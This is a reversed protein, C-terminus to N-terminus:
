EEDAVFPGHLRELASVGPPLYLMDGNGLLDQAGNQDLITRGDIRTRVQFAIRSPMNAKILGTIVNVSPRQTAVILHIGAARAKQALRIISEEVDKAAVMMLDALEDIVVVIYPLRRPPPPVEGELLDPPAYRRAKAPTWDDLEREVKQNYSAINRVGWRTLLRYREDMEVCAWKLAASALRPETVVPHLLHPIDRYMEFELMKPDILLMRMEEPTRAYLMSLLMSNVSVSKGSGTTGGVLLHPMRALDALYPKGEVSKGLALPLAVDSRRYLDSALLDRIWVTQRARNPVEIGVVGKGPIPAVIRVRVAKMAMALDDSLSAIKSVKIGAAPLFEFITIVPGPRISVVEGKVKFDALKAELTQAMKRLYSEDVQLIDRSHRDLLDLNPLEFQTMAEHAIVAQGGHDKGGSSLEGPTVSIPGENRAQLSEVPDPEQATVPDPEQAALPDPEQAAVPQQASVPVPVELSSLSPLSAPGGDTPSCLDATPPSPESVEQVSPPPCSQPGTAASVQERHPPTPSPSPASDQPGSPQSPIPPPSPSEAFRPITAEATPEWEVEVLDRGAVRTKEIPDDEDSAPSFSSSLADTLLGHNITPMPIAGVTPEMRIAIPGVGLGGSAEEVADGEMDLVHPTVRVGADERSSWRAVSSRLSGWLVRSGGRLGEKTLGHVRQLGTTMIGIAGAALREWDLGFVLPAALAIVGVVLLWAGAPGVGARLWDASMMGLLGGPRFPVDPDVEVAMALACLVACSLLLGMAQVALGRPERGALRRFFVVGLAVVGWAGYGLVHLLVDALWAGAPGTANTVDTGGTTTFAPDTPSYDFLALSAFCCSLVGFGLAAQRLAKRNAETLRWGPAAASDRVGPGKLRKRSRAGTKGAGARPKSSKPKSRAVTGTSRKM